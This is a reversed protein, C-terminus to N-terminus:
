RSAATAPRSTGFRLAAPGADASTAALFGLGLHLNHRVTLRGQRFADMGSRLDAAMSVWVARDATILADPARRQDADDVDARDRQVVVDWAGEDTVQLRIRAAHGSVDMATRDFREILTGLFEPLASSRNQVTVRPVPQAGAPEPPKALKLEARGSM